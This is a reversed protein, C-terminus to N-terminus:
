YGRPIRTPDAQQVKAQLDHGDDAVGYTDGIYGCTSATCAAGDYILNSTGPCHYHAFTPPITQVLGRSCQYPTSAGGIQPGYTGRNGYDHVPSYGAPTVANSDYLNAANNDGSSERNAITTLGRTWNNVAAKDTIGRAALAKAIFGAISGSAGRAYSVGTKENIAVSTVWGHTVVPPKAGAVPKLTPKYTGATDRVRFLGSKNGLATLSTEGPIGDADAGKLGLSRQFAAYAEKDQPNFVGVTFTNTKLFGLKNLAAQMKAVDDHSTDSGNQRNEDAASTRGAWEIQILSVWPRNDAPATALSLGGSAAYRSGAVAHGPDATVIGDVYAPYGYGFVYSDKRVRKQRYVGDGQASGSTNTNGEITYIYLADYAYVFGVHSGAGPGFFVLAGLAPYASTRGKNKYFQYGAATSATVPFLAALGAVQRPCWSQMTMCWAEDQSWELGPVAPSYKQHNSWNGNPDRGEHYGVQANEVQYLKDAQSTM